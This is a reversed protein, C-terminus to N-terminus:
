TMEHSRAYHGKIFEEGWDNRIDRWVTHIHNANNQTNDYEVLLSPGHLRYYDPTGREELGAWAFHIYGRGEKEIRDMQRDAVEGPMRSIYVMLLEMLLGKQELSSLVETRAM